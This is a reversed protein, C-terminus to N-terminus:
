ESDQERNDWSFGAFFVSHDSKYEKIFGSVIEELEPRGNDFGAPWVLKRVLLPRGVVKQKSTVQGAIVFFGIIHHEGLFADIVSLCAAKSGVEAEKDFGCTVPHYDPNILRYLDYLRAKHSYLSEMTIVIDDEIEFKEALYQAYNPLRLPGQQEDETGNIRCTALRGCDSSVLELICGECRLQRMAKIVKNLLRLTIETTPTIRSEIHFSGGEILITFYDTKIYSRTPPFEQANVDFFGDCSFTHGPSSASAKIVVSGSWNPSTRTVEMTGAPLDLFPTSSLIGFRQEHAKINIVPVAGAIGLLMDEFSKINEQGEITIQVNAAGDEYGVERLFEKKRVIYSDYDDGIAGLLKEKLLLSSIKELKEAASFTISKTCSNPKFGAESVERERMKKLFERSFVEDVHKVYIDSVQDADEEFVLLVYFSPISCTALSHLNSYEIDHSLRGRETSKIQVRCEIASRHMSGADGAQRQVPMELHYDWGRKDVLSPNAIIGRAACLGYFQSQGLEGLDRM